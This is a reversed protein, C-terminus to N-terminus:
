GTRNEKKTKRPVVFHMTRSRTRTRPLSTTSTGSSEGSAFFHGSQRGETSPPLSAGVAGAGSARCVEDEDEVWAGDGAGSLNPESGDETRGVDWCVEMGFM